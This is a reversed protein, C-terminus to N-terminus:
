SAVAIRLRDLGDRGVEGRYVGGALLLHGEDEPLLLLRSIEVDAVWQLHLPHVHREIQVAEDLARRPDEALRAGALGEERARQQGPQHLLVHRDVQHEVHVVFVAPLALVLGLLLDLPQPLQEGGAPDGHERQVLRRGPPPPALHIPHHAHAVIPDLRLIHVAEGAQHREGLYLHPGEIEQAPPQPLPPGGPQQVLSVRQLFQLARQFPAGEVPARQPGDLALQPHEATEVEQLLPYRLVGDALDQVVQVPPDVHDQLEPAIAIAQLRVQQHGVVDGAADVGVVDPALLLRQSFPALLRARQDDGDLLRVLKEIGGHGPVGDEARDGAFQALVVDRQQDDILPGAPDVRLHHALDAGADGAQQVVVRVDPRDERADAPRAGQPLHQRPEIGALLREDHAM